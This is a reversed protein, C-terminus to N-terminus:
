KGAVATKGKIGVSAITSKTVPMRVVKSKDDRKPIAEVALVSKTVDKETKEMPDAADPNEMWNPVGGSAAFERLYMEIDPKLKKWYNKSDTSFGGDPVACM